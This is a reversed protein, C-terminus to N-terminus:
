SIIVCLTQAGLIKRTQLLSSSLEDTRATSDM